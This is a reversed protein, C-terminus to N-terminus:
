IFCFNDLRWLLWITHNELYYVQSSIVPTHTNNVIEIHIHAKNGQIELAKLALVSNVHRDLLRKMVWGARSSSTTVGNTNASQNTILGLGKWPRFYGQPSALVSLVGEINSKLPNSTEKAQRLNLRWRTEDPLQMVSWYSSLKRERRSSVSTEFAIFHYYQGYKINSMWTLCVAYSEIELTGISLLIQCVLNLLKSLTVTTPHWETWRVLTDTYFIKIM